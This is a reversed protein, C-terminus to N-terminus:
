HGGNRPSLLALIGALAGTALAILGSPATHGIAELIIAGVVACAGLGGAVVIGIIRTRDDM